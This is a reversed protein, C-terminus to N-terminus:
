ITAAKFRWAQSVADYIITVANGPTLTYTTGGPTLFTNQAVSSGSANPFTIDQTGINYLTHAVGHVTGGGPADIGTIARSAGTPNLRHENLATMLTYNNQDTSIDAYTAFKSGRWINGSSFRIVNPRGTYGLWELTSKYDVRSANLFRFLVPGNATTVDFANTDAEADAATPYVKDNAARFYLIQPNSHTAPSGTSTMAPLASSTKGIDMYVPDSNTNDIAVRYGDFLTFTNAAASVTAEIENTQIECDIVDVVGVGVTGFDPESGWNPMKCRVMKLYGGQGILMRFPTVPNSTHGRTTLWTCDEMEVRDCQLLTSTGFDWMRLTDNAGAVHGSFETHCNKFKVDSLSLDTNGIGLLQQVSAWDARLTINEFNARAITGNLELGVDVVSISVVTGYVNDEPNPALSDGIRVVLTNYGPYVNPTSHTIVPTGGTLSSTSTMEPPDGTVGTMSVRYTLNNGSGSQVVTVASLGTVLRLATQVTAATAGAAISGSTNGNYTVTFSGGTPSGSIVIHQIEPNGYYWGGATLANLAEATLTQRGFISMGAPLSVGPDGGGRLSLQYEEGSASSGVATWAHAGGNYVTGKVYPNYAQLKHVELDAVRGALLQQTVTVNDVKIRQSTDSGELDIRDATLNAIVIDQCDEQIDIVGYVGGDIVVNRCESLRVEVGTGLTKSLIINHQRNSSTQDGILVPGCDIFTNGDMLVNSPRSSGGSIRIQIAFKASSGVGCHRLTCNTVKYNDRGGGLYFGHSGLRRANEVWCNDCIFGGSMHWTQDGDGGGYYFESNFLHANKYSLGDDSTQSTLEWISPWHVKVDRMTVGVGTNALNYTDSQGSDIIFNTRSTFSASNDVEAIAGAYPAWEFTGREIQFNDFGLYFFGVLNEHVHYGESSLNEVIGGNQCQRVAVHTQADCDVSIGPFSVNQEGSIMSLFGVYRTNNRFHHTWYDQNALGPLTLRYYGAPVRFTAPQGYAQAAALCERFALADNHAILLKNSGIEAGAADAITFTSATPVTAITTFHHKRVASAPPDVPLFALEQMWVVENDVMKNTTGASWTPEVTGTRRTGRVYVARYLRGSTPDAILHGLPVAMGARWRMPPMEQDPLFKIGHFAVADGKDDWHVHSATVYGSATGATGDYAVGSFDLTTASGGGDGTVEAEVDYVTDGSSTTKIQVWDGVQIGHGTAVTMRVTGANNSIASFQARLMDTGDNRWRDTVDMHQLLKWNSTGRGYIAMSVAHRPIPVKIRNFNTASLTANGTTTQLEASAATYAGDADFAVFKYGYTTSGASGQNTIAAHTGTIVPTSCDCVAGSELLLVGQGVEFDHAVPTGASDKTTYIGAASTGYYINRSGSAGYDKVNFESSRSITTLGDPTLLGSGGGGAAWDAGGAGDATWHYGATAGVPNPGPRQPFTQTM